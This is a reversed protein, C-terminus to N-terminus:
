TVYNLPGFTMGVMMGPPDMTIIIRIQREKIDQKTSKAVRRFIFM